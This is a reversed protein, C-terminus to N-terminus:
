LRGHQRRHLAEHPSPAAVHSEVRQPRPVYGRIGLTARWQLRELVDRGEDIVGAVNERVDVWLEAGIVALHGLGVQKVKVVALPFRWASVALRESESLHREDEHVRNANVLVHTGQQVLRAVSEM